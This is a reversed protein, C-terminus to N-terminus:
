PAAEAPVAVIRVGPAEFAVPWAAFREAVDAGFQAREENGIFVHTVGYRRALARVDESAGEQYVRAVADQRETIAPIKGRWQIEHGPWGLLTPVGTAASVMNGGQYDGGVAELLLDDNDLNAHVWNLAAAFSPDAALYRISDLGRAQGERSRAVTAAPGYLLTGASLVILLAALPPSLWRPELSPLRDYVTALAVAGAVALILWVAYWFKFIGNLRGGLEDQLYLLELALLVAAAFAALALWAAQGRDTDRHARWTAAALWVLILGLGILVLWGVGRDAIARPEDAVITAVMWAIVAAAAVVLAVLAATRSPLPRLMAAAVLVPTALPLWVLLFRTPDSWEETLLGVGLSPADLGSLFPWALLLALGTPLALYRVTLLVAPLPRWGAGLFAVTTASGWLLGYILTDWANAMALAAFLMAVLLLAGPRRLWSRWSLQTMGEFTPLTVAVAVVALPLALVHAHLDGLVISFAPFETITGPLVRTAHWWWWFETPVGDRVSQPPPVGPVGLHPWLGRGIGNAGLLDIFGVETSVFLLGAVALAGAVWVSAPRRPRTLAFADGALAFVAAGAMAGAMALGLNFEVAPGIGSLRGVIDVMVHGLHYYSLPEGAFWADTAPLADSARISTLLMLDMPKETAYAAPAQARVLAILLFLALFLAEGVLLLPTRSVLADLRAPSRLALGVSWAFLALVFFLILPLGYPVPTTASIVWAGVGLWVLGLPRAYLVGGSRLREFVLSAPLLSAMGVALLAIYWALLDM